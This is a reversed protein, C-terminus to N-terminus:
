QLPLTYREVGAVGGLYKELMTKYQGNAVMAALAAKFQKAIAEGQPHKKNFIVYLTEEGAPTEQRLFRNKDAALNRELFWDVAPEADALFDIRGDKLKELLTLLKGNEVRIGAKTYAEVDDEADAGYVMNALAKLDNNAPLGDPHKSQHVYHYKKLRLLPVFILQEKEEASFKLHSGIVALAQEQFLFYKLMRALPQSSVSANIKEAGLLSNVLAMAIGGDALDTTIFPPFDLAHIANANPTFLDQKIRPGTARADVCFFSVLAVTLAVGILCKQINM